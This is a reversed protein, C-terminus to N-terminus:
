IRGNKMHDLMIYMDTIDIKSRKKSEVDTCLRAIEIEGGLKDALKQIDREIDVDIYKYMQQLCHDNVESLAQRYEDESEKIMDDIFNDACIIKISEYAKDWGIENLLSEVKSYYKDKNYLNVYKINMDKKVKMLINLYTKHESETALRYELNKIDKDLIYLVKKWRLFDRKDLRNLCRFLAKNCYSYVHSCLQNLYYMAQSFSINDNEVYKNLVSVDNWNENVFGCIYLLQTTTFEGSKNEKLYKALITQIYKTYVDNTSFDEPLPTAYIEKIAFKYGQKEYDFFREWKKLQAKKSNGDLIDEELLICLEKYNKVIMGVEINNLNM